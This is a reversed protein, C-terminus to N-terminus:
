KQIRYAPRTQFVRFRVKTVGGQCSQKGMDLIGTINIHVCLVTVGSKALVQNM